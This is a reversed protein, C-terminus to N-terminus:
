HRLFTLLLTVTQAAAEKVFKPFDIESAGEATDSIARLVCFPVRNVYCVQGIAAGEMECAIANFTRAIEEKRAPSSVFQDGSAIVGTETKIGLVKACASLEGSLGNDAPIYVKNIGSILGVPDGLPSTDMDHQVVASSVAISGIPLAACLAGAVGTNIIMDPNFHLIMTQACLAAFVKGVGCVATVVQNGQLSGSVFTIGSIVEKVPNEIYSRLSQMEVEMAAIMGITKM